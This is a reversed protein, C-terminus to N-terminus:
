PTYPNDPHAVPPQPSFGLPGMTVTRLGPAGIHLSSTASGPGGNYAFTLPRTAADAGDLTYAAYFMLAETTGEGNKIPLRGATATYRLSQGNVTVQHHTVSAPTEKMDFRFSTTTAGTAGTTPSPAPRPEAERERAPQQQEQEMQRARAPPEPETSSPTTAPPTTAPPTAPAPQPTRRREQAFAPLALVLILAFLYKKSFM